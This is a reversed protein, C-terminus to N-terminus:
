VAMQFFELPKKAARVKRKWLKDSQLLTPATRTKEFCFQKPLTTYLSRPPNTGSIRKLFAGSEHTHYYIKKMGLEELLFWLAATLMAEHWTKEHTSFDNEWYRLFKETSFKGGYKCFIPRKEKQKQYAKQAVTRMDRLLDTQIEEILAEGSELDLDLRCWSLTPHKGDKVPHGWGQFPDYENLDVCSKLKEHHEQNLNLQLVLSVGERSVQNYRWYEIDDGWIDLSLRYARGNSLYQHRPILAHHFKGDHCQALHPKVAPKELLRGIPKTRLQQLQEEEQSLWHLLHFAYDDKSYHFLTRGKSLCAIVERALELTM